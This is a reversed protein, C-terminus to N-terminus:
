RFSQGAYTAEMSQRVLMEFMEDEKRNLFKFVTEAVYKPFHKATIHHHQGIIQRKIITWFSEITNTSVGKCTCLKKHNVVVQEIIKNIRRCSPQEGSIYVSEDEFVAREVMEVLKEDSLNKMVMAVVDQQNGPKSNKVPEDAQENVPKAAPLAEQSAAQRLEAARSIRRGTDQLLGPKRFNKTDVSTRMKRLVDKKKANRNEEAMIERITHYMKFATPYSVNLNRQLQLASVGKKADTIISFAFLWKKLPLRTDHLHTHVTVSYTKGCDYCKFRHDRTRTSANRSSCYPCVPQEGWRHREFYEIADLEDPFKESIEVINM